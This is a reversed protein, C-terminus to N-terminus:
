ASRASVRPGPPPANGLPARQPDDRLLPPPFIKRGPGAVPRGGRRDVDELIPKLGTCNEMAVVLGGHSEVMELVREAGAVMPVGTM